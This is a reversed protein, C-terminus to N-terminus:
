DGIGPWRSGWQSWDTRCESVVSVPVSHQCIQAKRLRICVNIPKSQAKALFPDHSSVMQRLVQDCYCSEEATVIHSIFNFLYNFCINYIWCIRINEVCACLCLDLICRNYAGGSWTALLAPHIFVPNGAISIQFCDCVPYHWSLICKLYKRM